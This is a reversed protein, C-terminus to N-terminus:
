EGLEAALEAEFAALEDDIDQQSQSYPLVKPPENIKIDLLPYDKDTPSVLDYTFKGTSMYISGEKIEGANWLVGNGDLYIDVLGDKNFDGFKFDDFWCTWITGEQTPWAEGPGPSACFESYLVTKFTGDGLNEEITIGAGAYAYGVYERIVDLDGDGDLDAVAITPVEQYPAGSSNIVDDFEFGREYFNGTGDNLLIGNFTGNCDNGMCGPMSDLSGHFKIGSYQKSGWVLDLDGDNDVDGLEPTLGWQDGCQRVVMHGDGQNEYCYIYGNETRKSKSKEWGHWAISTVVIDIDGDGDIDGISAGHSFNILGKGEKVGHGKTWDTVCCWEGTIHTATSELWTGDPQSLFFMDNKGSKDMNISVNETQFIDVKGDGNFDAVHLDTGDTGKMEIPNNDVLLGTVDTGTYKFSDFYKEKEVSYVSISGQKSYCAGVSTNCEPGYEDWVVGAQKPNTIVLLDLVGDNDFDTFAFHHQTFSKEKMANSRKAYHPSYMPSGDTPFWNGSSTSQQVASTLPVTGPETTNVSNDVSSSGGCNYEYYSGDASIGKVPESGDPCGSAQTVSAYGLMLVSLSILSITIKKM